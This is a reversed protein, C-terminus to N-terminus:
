SQKLCNEKKYSRKYNKLVFNLSMLLKLSNLIKQSKVDQQKQIELKTPRKGSSDTKCWLSINQSNFKTIFLNFFVLTKMKSTKSYTANRELTDSNKELTATM